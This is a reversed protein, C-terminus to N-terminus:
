KQIAEPHKEAILAMADADGCVVVDPHLQLISAPNEPTIPGFLASELIEAKAAGNVVMLIKKAQMIARIGMTLATRPVEDASAFFRANADITDETLQVHNTGPVFRDGPENFGIHGDRGIGLLQM